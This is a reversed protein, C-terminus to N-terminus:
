PPSMTIDVAFATENMTHVKCVISSEVAIKVRVLSLLTGQLLGIPSKGM